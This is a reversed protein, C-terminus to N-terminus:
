LQLDPEQPTLAEGAMFGVAHWQTVSDTHSCGMILPHFKSWTIVLNAYRIDALNLVLGGRDPRETEIQTGSIFLHVTRPTQGADSLPLLQYLFFSHIFIIICKLMLMEKKWLRAKFSVVVSCCPNQDEQCIRKNILMRVGHDNWCIFCVGPFLSLLSLSQYLIVCQKITKIQHKVATSNQLAAKSGHDRIEDVTSGEGSKWTSGQARLRFTLHNQFLESSFILEHQWLLIFHYYNDVRNIVKSM